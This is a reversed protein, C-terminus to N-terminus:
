RAVAGFGAVLVAQQPWDTAPDAGDPLPTWLRLRGAIERSDPGYVAAHWDGAFAGSASMAPTRGTPQEGAAADTMPTADTRGSPQEGAAADTMPTAATRGSPQEGAAATGSWATEQPGGVDLMLSRWPLPPQPQPELSPHDLPHLMVNDIRGSLQTSAGAPTLTLTIDGALAFRQRDWFLHGSVRGHWSGPTTAPLAAAPEGFALGAKTAVIREPFMGVPAVAWWGYGSHELRRGGGADGSLALAVDHTADPGSPPPCDTRNYLEAWATPHSPDSWGTVAHAPGYVYDAGFPYSTHLRLQWGTGADDPRLLAKTGASARALPVLASDDALVDAARDAASGGDAASDGDAPASGDGSLAQDIVSGDLGAQDFLIGLPTPEPWEPPADSDGGPAWGRGPYHTLHEATVIQSQQWPRGASADGVGDDPGCGFVVPGTGTVANTPGPPGAHDRTVVLTLNLAREPWPIVPEGTILATVEFLYEGYEPLEAVTRGRDDPGSPHDGCAVSGGVGLRAHAPTRYVCTFETVRHALDEDVEWSLTVGKDSVQASLETLLRGPGGPRSVVLPGADGAGCASLVLVAAALAAPQRGRGLRCFAFRDPRSRLRCSEASRAANM